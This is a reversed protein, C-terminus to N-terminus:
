HNVYICFNIRMHSFCDHHFLLILSSNSDVWAFWLHWKNFSDWDHYLLGSFIEVLFLILLVHSFYNHIFIFLYRLFNDYIFDPFHDFFYSWCFITAEDEWLIFILLSALLISNWNLEVRSDFISRSEFNSLDDFLRHGGNNYSILFFFDNRCIPFLNRSNCDIFISFYRLAM